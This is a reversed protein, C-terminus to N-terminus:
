RSLEKRVRQLVDPYDSILGDVGWRILARMDAEENVTWPIIKLQLAKAEAVNKQDLDRFNPSWVRGGAAKVTAPVSGKYDDVDFGAFWPSAGPKGRQVTENTGQENTLFVTSVQPATKAVIRLTRWDFSQITVRDHLKAADIEKLLASVFLEPPLTESAALPSLKTEVNFRVFDAGCTKTNKYRNFVDSLKPIRVSDQGQQRAFPKGYASAANVRGVDYRQLAEFSLAQIAGGRAPLFNGQADRTIDPNLTRDHYVVVVGDSTVGVDFELTNVCFALAQDFAVLTNEPALGRAGRHGQADFRSTACGSVMLLVAVVWGMRALKAGM